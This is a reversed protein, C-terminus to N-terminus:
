EADVFFFEERHQPWRAAALGRQHPHQRAELRRGFALHQQRALIDGQQRGILPGDVHHELGIGQERVHRDLLVDSKAGLLVAHALTVDVGAHLFHQFHHLQLRKGLALRMLQRAPLPLPHGQRPRQGLPGLHQQQILRQRRQIFLQAFFGLELQSVQLLLEPKRKQNHRVVLFLGHGDGVADADHVVALDDLHRRGGFDVLLRVAFVDGVENAIDVDEGAFNRAPIRAAILHPQFAQRHGTSDIHHAVDGAFGAILHM